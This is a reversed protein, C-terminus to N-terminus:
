RCRVTEDAACIKDALCVLVSERYKPPTLNLPFMHRAIVDEDVDGLQFDREANKLACEAHTFGHLVHTRSPVHWDYLFYDHLLAGRIMARENVDINLKEALVVAMYAVRVSHGYVSIRGHQMFKKEKQMGDSVLIDSGYHRIMRFIINREKIKINKMREIIDTLQWLLM